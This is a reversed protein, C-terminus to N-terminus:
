HTTTRQVNRYIEAYRELWPEPGFVERLRVGAARARAAAAAPDHHVARVAGALRAPDEPPVLLAEAPSVVDPVGGVATAVVPVGAEMAEFLAIPTGETRSSLVFADFAPFLPGAEPVLGHWRVRDAIGLAQARARLGAEEAGAGIISVILPLDGLLAVADLLVDAGKERGLRGVWGLHFVGSPVGLRARAEAAGLPAAYPAWANPVLHVRAPPVGSAVLEAVQPRSVAAVADFRRYARRQMWEYLRGKWRGRIFGHVTAVTPVGLSRAAPADVVDPRYGHTHVVGAGMRRCADRVAVRERLYARTPIALLRVEVGADSLSAALPHDTEGEDVVALLQVRHGAAHQGLCLSRVVRELGGVRAPAAM